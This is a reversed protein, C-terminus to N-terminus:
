KPQELKLHLDLSQVQGVALILKGVDSQLGASRGSIEYTGPEVFVFRYGGSDNSQVDRSEGTDVSRLQVTAASVVKDAPDTVTGTIEGTTITQCLAAPILAAVAVAHFTTVLTQRFYASMIM